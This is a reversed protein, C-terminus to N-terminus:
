ASRKSRGSRTPEVEPADHLGAGSTPSGGPRRCRAANAITEAVAAMTGAADPVSDNEGSGSVSGSGSGSVSGSGSGSGAVGYRAPGLIELAHELGLLEDLQRAPMGAAYFYGQGYDCGLRRLEADQEASQIGEAVVQLGFEAGIALVSRVLTAEDNSRCLGDVFSKDVKIVDVPFQQLHSLSSYGTGFDDIAITVGLRHLSELVARAGAVDGILSGETVEIMLAAPPIGAEDLAGRVSSVIEHDRLQAASLNVSVVMHEDHTDRWRRVQQCADQLVIKGMPVILGTEEAVEIFDAPTLLGLTPHAWRALAEVAEIKQDALTVIPQYHVQFQDRALADRLWSEVALRHLVGQHMEDTFYVYQNKGNAKAHYMAIDAQMLVSDADSSGPACTAIGISTSVHMQHGGVDFPEQLANIIRQAVIGGAAPGDPSAAVLVAFEDGGLRAVLDSPGVCRLLRQSVEVLLRDGADHGLGDNVTKFDDLDIFLVSTPDVDPRVAPVSGDVRGRLLGRNALGTLSDHFARHKLEDQLARREDVVRHNIVIGEVTAEDLLNTFTSEAWHWTGTSDLLRLEITQPRLPDAIVANWAAGAAPRDDPHVFAGASQGFREPPAWGLIREVAPSDYHVCGTADIVTIMDTARHVLARFRQESEHKTEAQVAGGTSRRVMLFLYAVLEGIIVFFVGRSVWDSANQAMGTATNAPLLPGAVFTATLGGVLAGLPGFRLGALLIPILFWEPLVNTGGGMWYAAAWSVPFLVAIIALALGAPLDALTFWATLRVSEATSGGHEETV